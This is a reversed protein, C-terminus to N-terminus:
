IVMTNCPCSQKRGSMDRSHSCVDYLGYYLLSVVDIRGVCVRYIDHTSKAVNFALVPVTEIVSTM